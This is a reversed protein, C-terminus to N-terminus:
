PLTYKVTLTVNSFCLMDAVSDWNTSTFFELMFQSRTQGSQVLGQIVAEGDESGKVDWAWPSIPYNTFSGNEALKATRNSWIMTVKTADDLNGYQHHYVKVAGMSGFMVDYTPNGSKTCDSIDLIAEEIVASGPIASIDFSLFAKSQASGSTDGICLTNKNVTYDSAGTSLSKLNVMSGSEENVVPLIIVKQGSATQPLPAAAAPNVTVSTSSTVTGASSTATITYTTTAAPSVVMTGAANVTGIGQDISVTDSGSVNWVLTSVGGFTIASPASSFELIVPAAAPPTATVTPGIQFTICGPVLILPLLSLSLFMLRKM